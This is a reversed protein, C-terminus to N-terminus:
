FNEFSFWSSQFFRFSKLNMKAREREWEKFKKIETIERQRCTKIEKERHSQGETQINKIINDGRQCPTTQGFIV